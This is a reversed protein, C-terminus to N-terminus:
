QTPEQDGEVFPTLWEFLHREQELIESKVDLLLSWVKVAGPNDPGFGADGMIHEMLGSLQKQLDNLVPLTYCIADEFSVPKGDREKEAKQAKIECSMCRGSTCLNSTGGCDVCVPCILKEEM